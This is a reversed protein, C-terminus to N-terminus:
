GNKEGPQQPPPPDQTLAPAASPPGPLIDHPDPGGAVPQVELTIPGLLPLGGEGGLTLKNPVAGELRDFIIQLAKTNGKSGERLLALVQVKSMPMKTRNMTQPDTADVELDMCERLLTSLQKGRVGPKSGEPNGSQGPKFQYEKPPHGHGVAEQTKKPEIDSM